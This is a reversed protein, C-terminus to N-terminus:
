CELGHLLAEALSFRVQLLRLSIVSQRRQRGGVMDHVDAKPGSRHQREVRSKAQSSNACLIEFNLEALDRGFQTM